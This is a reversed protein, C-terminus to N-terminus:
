SWLHSFYGWPPGAKFALFSTSEHASTANPNDGDGVPKVRQSSRRGIWTPFAYALAECRCDAKNPCLEARSVAAPRRAAACPVAIIRPKHFSTPISLLKFLLWSRGVSTIKRKARTDHTTTPFIKADPRWTWFHIVMGGLKSKHRRTKWGRWREETSIEEGVTGRTVCPPDDVKQRCDLAYVSPGNINKLFPLKKGKLKTPPGFSVEVFWAFTWELHVFMSSWAFKSTKRLHVNVLSGQATFILRHTGHHRISDSDMRCKYWIVSWPHWHNQFKKSNANLM